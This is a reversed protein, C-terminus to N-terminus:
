RNLCLKALSRLGENRIIRDPDLRIGHHNFFDDVYKIKDGETKVWGPYGSAETKIKLFTAIYDNFLGKDGTKKNYESTNPWHYIEYTRKVIYGKEIALNLEPSAWVGQLLRQEETCTCPDKSLATACTGCLPFMLRGNCKFPLVPHLLGRPPLVKCYILGYFKTVDKVDGLIIEPHGLPYRGYYQTSPYLSCIDAYMIKEDGQVEHFLKYANTRGGYFAERSFFFIM